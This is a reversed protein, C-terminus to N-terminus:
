RVDILKLLVRSEPMREGDVFAPLREGTDRNYFGVWLRYEGPPLDEPLFLTRQDEIVEGARWSATPRFGGVPAGDVQAVIEGKGDIVHIFVDYNQPTVRAARWFFTLSLPTGPVAPLPELAYGHLELSAPEGFDARLPSPIPPFETQLPWPEVEIEGLDVNSGAWLFGTPLPAETEPNLLAARVTYQGAGATAPVPFWEQGHLLEGAQWQTMPYDARTPTTIVEQIVEGAEDVLQLRLVYDAPPTEQAQWYFDIIAVHGPKYAVDPMQYGLLTIDRAFRANLPTFEPLQALGEPARAAEVKLSPMLLVDINGDAAPLPEGGPQRLLRLWVQYDGPPIGAPLWM